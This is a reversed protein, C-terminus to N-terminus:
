KQHCTKGGLARRNLIKIKKEYKRLLQWQCYNTPNARTNKLKKSAAKLNM